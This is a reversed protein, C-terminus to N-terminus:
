VDFQNPNYIHNNEYYAVYGNPWKKLDEQFSSKQSIYLEYCDDNSRIVRALHIDRLGGDVSVMPICDFCDVIVETIREFRAQDAQIQHNRTETAIHSIYSLENRISRFIAVTLLSPLISNDIPDSVKQLGAIDSIKGKEVCTTTQLGILEGSQITMLDRSSDKKFTIRYFDDPRVGGLGRDFQQTISALFGSDNILLPNPILRKLEPNNEFLITIENTLKNM